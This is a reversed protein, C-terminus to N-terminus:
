TMSVPLFCISTMLDTSDPPLPSDDGRPTNIEPFDFRDHCDSDATEALLKSQQVDKVAM